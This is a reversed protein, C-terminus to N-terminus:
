INLISYIMGILLLLYLYSIFKNYPSKLKHELQTITSSQRKEKKILIDNHNTLSNCKYKLLKIKNSKKVIAENLNNNEQKLKNCFNILKANTEKLLLGKGDKTSIDTLLQLLEFKSNNTLIMSDNIILNIQSM